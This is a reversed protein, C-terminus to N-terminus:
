AVLGQQALRDRKRKDVELEKKAREAKYKEVDEPKASKYAEGKPNVLVEKGSISLRQYPYRQVHRPPALPQEPDSSPDYHTEHAHDLAEVYEEPVLSPTNRKIFLSTGNISVPVERDGGPRDQNPIQIYIMRRARKIGYEDTGDWVFAESTALPDSSKRTNPSPASVMIRISKGAYGASRILAIVDAQNAKGDVELGMMVAFEVLQALEAKDIAIEQFKLDM